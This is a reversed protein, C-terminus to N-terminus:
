NLKSNPLAQEMWFEEIEFCLMRGYTTCGDARKWIKGVYSLAM